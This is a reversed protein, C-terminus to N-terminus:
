GLHAHALAASWPGLSCCAYVAATLALGPLALPSRRNMWLVGLLLCAAVKAIVLTSVLGFAEMAHALLPNGEGFGVRIGSYTAVGDFAQLALNVLLLAFLARDTHPIEFAPIRKTLAMVSQVPALIASEM